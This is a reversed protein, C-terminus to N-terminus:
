KLQFVVTVTATLDTTGSQVPMAGAADAAAFERYEPVPPAVVIESIMVVDGVSVGAADAYEGARKRANDIAAARAGSIASEPDAVSFSIGNITISDGAFAAAGDIIEGARALDRVTVGLNNSAEYGTVRSGNQSYQPFISIGTTVIDDDAVGLAKLAAILATAKENTQDLVEQAAPGSVRVGMGVTAIDPKVTTKGEGTVTITRTAASTTSGDGPDGPTTSPSGASATPAGDGACAVVAVALM